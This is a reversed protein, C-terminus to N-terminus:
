QFSFATDDEACQVLIRDCPFYGHLSYFFTGPYCEAVSRHCQTHTLKVTQALLKVGRYDRGICCANFVQLLHECLRHFKKTSLNIENEVGYAHARVYALATCVIVEVVIIKLFCEVDRGDREM